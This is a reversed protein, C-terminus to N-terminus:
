DIRLSECVLTLEFHEGVVAARKREVMACIAISSAFATGTDYQLGKSCCQSVAILDTANNAVGNDIL